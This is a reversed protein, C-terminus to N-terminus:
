RDASPNEWPKPHPPPPPDTNAALEGPLKLALTWSQLRAANTALTLDKIDVDTSKLGRELMATKGFVTIENTCKM